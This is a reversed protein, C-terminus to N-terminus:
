GRAPRLWARQDKQRLWGCGSRSGCGTSGTPGKHLLPPLCHTHIHTHTNLQVYSKHASMLSCTSHPTQTFLLTFLRKQCEACRNIFAQFLGYVGRISRQVMCCVCLYCVFLYVHVCARVCAYACVCVFTCLCALVCVSVCMRACACVYM